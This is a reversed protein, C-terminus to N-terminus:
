STGIQSEPTASPSQNYSHAQRAYQECWALCENVDFVSFFSSSSLQCYSLSVKRRPLFGELECSLNAITAAPHSQTREIARSMKARSMKARSKKM